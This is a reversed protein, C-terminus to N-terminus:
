PQGQPTEPLMRAEYQEEGIGSLSAIWLVVDYGMNKWIYSFVLIWFAADTGPPM